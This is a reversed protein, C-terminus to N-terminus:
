PSNRNSSLITIPDRSPLTVEETLRWENNNPVISLYYRGKLPKRIPGSFLKSNQAALIIKHDDEPKFPASLLLTLSEPANTEGSLFITVQQDQQSFLINVDVNYRAAIETQQLVANIDLGEQYYNEHVMGIDQRLAIWITIIGAVVVTGPLVILFWPWFQRYWPTPSQSYEM